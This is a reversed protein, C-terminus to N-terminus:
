KAFSPMARTGPGRVIGRGIQALRLERGLKLWWKMSESMNVFGGSVTVVAYGERQELETRYLSGM